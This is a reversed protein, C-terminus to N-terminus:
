FQMVLSSSHCIMRAHPDELPGIYDLKVTNGCENCREIPRDRSVQLLLM